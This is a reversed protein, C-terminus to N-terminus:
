APTGPRGTKGSCLAAAAASPHPVARTSGGGGTTICSCPWGGGRRGWAAAQRRGTAGQLVLSRWLFKAALASPGLTQMQPTRLRLISGCSGPATGPGWPSSTPMDSTATLPTQQTEPAKKGVSVGTMMLPEPSLPDTRMQLTFLSVPFWSFRRESPQHLGHGRPWCAADGVAACNPAAPQRGASHVPGAHWHHCSCALASLRDSAALSHWTVAASPLIQCLLHDKFHLAAEQM